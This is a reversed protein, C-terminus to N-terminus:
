SFRTRSASSDLSLNLPELQHLGGIGYTMGRSEEAANRISQCSLAARPSLDIQKASPSSGWWGWSFCEIQELHSPFTAPGYAIVGTTDNQESDVIYLRQEDSDLGTKFPFVDLINLLFAAIKVELPVNQCIEDILAGYEMESYTPDSYEELPFHRGRIWVGRTADYECFKKFSIDGGVSAEVGATGVKLEFDFAFVTSTHTYKEVYDVIAYDPEAFQLEYASNFIVDLPGTVSTNSLGLSQDQGRVGSLGGLLDISTSLENMLEQGSVTYKTAREYSDNLLGWNYRFEMSLEDPVISLLDYLAGFEVGAGVEGSAGLGYATVHLPLESTAVSANFNPFHLGASLSAEGQGSLGALFQM